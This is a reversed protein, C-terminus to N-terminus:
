DWYIVLLFPMCIQYYRWLWTCLLPSQWLTSTQKENYLPILSLPSRSTHCTWSLVKNDQCSKEPLLVHVRTDDRDLSSSESGWDRGGALPLDPSRLSHKQTQMKQKILEHLYISRKICPPIKLARASHLKRFLWIWLYWLFINLTSCLMLKNHLYSFKRHKFPVILPCGSFLLGSREARLQM